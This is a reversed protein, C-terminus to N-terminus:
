RSIHGPRIWSLPKECARSFLAVVQRRFMEAVDPVAQQDLAADVSAM